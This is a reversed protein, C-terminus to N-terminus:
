STQNRTEKKKWENENKKRENTTQKKKKKTKTENNSRMFRFFNDVNNITWNTKKWQKTTLFIRRWVIVAHSRTLCEISSNSSTKTFVDPKEIYISIDFDRFMLRSKRTMAKVNVNLRTRRPYHSDKRENSACRNLSQVRAFRRDCEERLAAKYFTVKKQRLTSFSDIM